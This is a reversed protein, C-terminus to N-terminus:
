RRKISRKDAMGLAPPHVWSQQSPGNKEVSRVLATVIAVDEVESRALARVHGFSEPTGADAGERRFALWDYWPAGRYRRSARVLQRKRIGGPVLTVFHIYTM